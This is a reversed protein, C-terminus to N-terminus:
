EKIQNQLFATYGGKLDVVKFGLSDLVTAAKASRGGMKCYLYITKEKHVDQFKNTFEPDYWNINIANELHGAEFEEPTRVDVLVVNKTNKQSFETISKSKIQSYSLNVYLLLIIFVTFKM